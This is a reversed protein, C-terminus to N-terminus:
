PDLINKKEESNDNILRESNGYKSFVTTNIDGEVSRIKDGVNFEIM